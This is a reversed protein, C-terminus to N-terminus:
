ARGFEDGLAAARKRAALVAAVIRQKLQDAEMSAIAAATTGGKSTVRARLAQIPEDTAEALHAAGAVTAVAFQRAKSESLGMERGAAILSEIFYFVYAPGSGSLATVADLQEDDAVWVVNGAARLIIEAARKQAEGVGGM